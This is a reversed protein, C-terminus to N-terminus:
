NVDWTIKAGVNIPSSFTDSTAVYALSIMRLNPTSSDKMMTVMVIGYNDGEKMAYCYIPYQVYSLGDSGTGVIRVNQGSQIANFIKLYGSNGGVAASIESSSSSSTLSLVGVPIDVFDSVAGQGDFSGSFPTVTISTPNKESDVNISFRKLTGGHQVSFSFESLGAFVSLATLRISSNEIILSKSNQVSYYAEKFGDIGGFAQTIDEVSSDSTLSLVSFPVFIATIADNNVSGGSVGSNPTFCLRTGISTSFQNPLSLDSFCSLGSNVNNNAAGGLKPVFITDSSLSGTSYLDCWYTLPNGGTKEPVIDGFEGFFITNIFGGTTNKVLQIENNYGGFTDDNYYISNKSIFFSELNDNSSYIINMGDALQWTHGFLNEIGRYRPVFVSFGEPSYETPMTFEVVGTSNGLKDSYGCLIFPNNNNLNTWKSYDLTTVGVGLGGQAFGDADKEANFASQCNRNAYEVYYLWFVAKYANYDLLNWEVSGLKRNRAYQRFSTRNVNTVPMGLLSRYTGDWESNNNGGRYDETTNVVSSLKSTSRQLSAEYASIYMKPVHIYSALSVESIKVRNINGETEFKIYHEPIEVMVQGASGDRTESTWDTPNLYKVVNGDDDLLCGRMRSQIPLSRHLDMNGIRTCLPSSNTVDWEIGYWYLNNVYEKTAIENPSLNWFTPPINGKVLMVKNYVVIRTGSGGSGPIASYLVLASSARTKTAKLVGKLVSGDAPFDIRNSIQEAPVGDVYNWLSVSYGTAPEGQLLEISGVSVVFEEGINVSGCPLAKFNDTDIGYTVEVRESGEVLNISTLHVADVYKKTAPNYDSTPTYETTNDKTLVSSKFALEQPAVAGSLLPGGWASGDAATYVAVSQAKYNGLYATMICTGTSGASIKNYYVAWVVADFSASGDSSGKGSYFVKNSELAELFEPASGLEAAIEEPSSSSTIKMPDGPFVYVSSSSGGTPFKDSSFSIHDVIQLYNDGDPVRLTLECVGQIGLVLHLQEYGSIQTPDVDGKCYCFPACVVSGSPDVKIPSTSDIIFDLYKLCSISEDSFTFNVFEQNFTELFSGWYQEPNANIVYYQECLTQIILEMLLLLNGEGSQFTVLYPDIGRYRYKVTVMDIGSVSIVSPIYRTFGMKASLSNDSFNAVCFAKSGSVGLYIETGGVVVKVSEEVSGLSKSGYCGANFGVTSSEPTGSVKVFDIFYYISSLVTVAEPFLFDNIGNVLLEQPVEAYKLINSVGSGVEYPSVLTIIKDVFKYASITEQGDFKSRYEEPISIMTTVPDDGKYYYKITAVEGVSYGGQTAFLGDEGLTLINGEAKSINVKATVNGQSPTIELSADAAAISNVGTTQYLQISAKKTPDSESSVEVIKSRDESGLNPDSEITLTQNGSFEPASVTINDETGDGWSIKKEM